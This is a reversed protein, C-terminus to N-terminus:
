GNTKKRKKIQVSEILRRSFQDALAQAADDIAVADIAEEMEISLEQLQEVIQLVQEPVEVEHGDYTPNASLYFPEYRDFFAKM